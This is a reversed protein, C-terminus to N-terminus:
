QILFILLAAYLITFLLSSLALRNKTKRYSIAGIMIGSVVLIDSITLAVMFLVINVRSCSQSIGFLILFAMLLTAACSCTLALIASLPFVKLWSELKLNNVM